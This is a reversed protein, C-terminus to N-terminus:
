FVFMMADPGMVEHCISPTYVFLPSFIFRRHQLIGLLKHLYEERLSTFCLESEVHLSHVSVEKYFATRPFSLPLIVKSRLFRVFVVEALLSLHIDVIIFRTSLIYGKMRHVHCM